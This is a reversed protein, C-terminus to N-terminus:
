LYMRSLIVKNHFPFEFWILFFLFISIAACPLEILAIQLNKNWSSSLFIGLNSIGM